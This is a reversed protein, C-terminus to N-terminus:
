DLVALQRFLAKSKSPATYSKSVQVSPIVGVVFSERKDKSFKGIVDKLQWAAACKVKISDDKLFTQYAELDQKFLWVQAKWFGQAAKARVNESDDKFAGFFTTEFQTGLDTKLFTTSLAIGAEVALVRVSEQKDSTFVTYLDVMSTKAASNKSVKAFEGLNCAVAKRIVPANDAGMDKFKQLLFSDFVHKYCAPLLYCALQRSLDSKDSCLEMALPVFHTEISSSSCEAVLAKLLTVTQETESDKIEECKGLVKLVSQLSHFSSALFCYFILVIVLQM